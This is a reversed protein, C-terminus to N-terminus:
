ENDPEENLDFPLTKKISDMHNTNTEDELIKNPEEVEIQKQGDKDNNFEEERKNFLNEEEECVIPLKGKNIFDGTQPSVFSTGENNNSQVNKKNQRYKRMYENLKERNNKNYMKRYEQIKEKNRQRYVRYNSELREKNRKYYNRKNECMRERNEHYYKKYYESKKSSKGVDNNMDKDNKTLTEKFKQIQPNGSTEAGDNLSKNVDNSTYYNEDHRALAKRTPVTTVFTLLIENFIFVILLSALKM